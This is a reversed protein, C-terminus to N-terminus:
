GGGECRTCSVLTLWPHKLFGVWCVQVVGLMTKCWAGGCWGRFPTHHMPATKQHLFVGQEFNCWHVMPAFHHVPASLCYAISVVYQCCKGIPAGNAGFELNTCGQKQTCWQVLECIPAFPAAQFFINM